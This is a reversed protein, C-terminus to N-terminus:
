EVQTKAAMRLMSEESTWEQIKTLEVWALAKSESSVKFEMGRDAQLLYRIDYHFHAPQDVRAPIPHVDVDFISERLIRVPLGSEEQAERIAIALADLEGEGHGGLHLWKDLKRHHTLLVYSRTFDLVWAGGTIHGAALVPSFCTENERVFTELRSLMEREVRDYPQYRALEHLLSERTM